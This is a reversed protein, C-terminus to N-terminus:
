EGGERAMRATVKGVIRAIDEKIDEIEQNLSWVQQIEQRCNACTEDGDRGESLYTKFCQVQKLYLHRRGLSNTVPACGEDGCLFCTVSNVKSNVRDEM